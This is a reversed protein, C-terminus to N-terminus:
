KIAMLRTIEAEIKALATEIISGARDLLDRDDDDFRDMGTVRFLEVADLEEILDRLQAYAAQMDQLGGFGSKNIEDWFPHKVDLTIAFGKEQAEIIKRRLPRLEGELRRLIEIRTSVAKFQRNAREPDATRAAAPKKTLDLVAENLARWPVWLYNWVLEALPRLIYAGVISGGIVLAETLEADEPGFLAIAAVSGIGALM